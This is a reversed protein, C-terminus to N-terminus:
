NETTNENLSVHLIDENQLDNLSMFTFVSFLGTSLLM